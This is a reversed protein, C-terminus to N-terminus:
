SRAFPWPGARGDVAGDNDGEEVKQYSETLKEGATQLDENPEKM